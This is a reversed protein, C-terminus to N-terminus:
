LRTDHEFNVVVHHDPKYVAFSYGKSKLYAIIQPLAAVTQKNEHMLIVNLNGHVQRKIQKIVQDPKGSYKWDDSDVTWDWMKFGAKAIDDRFSKSIQPASGYPARILDVTLGTMQKFLQQEQQFEQIFNASSGSKYLKDYNHTMSHLGAYNGAALLHDIQKQHNKLQNGIVFFTAHIDRNTLINVIQDTYKSPGDDFTLYVTKSTISDPTVPAKGGAATEPPLASADPEPPTSAAAETEKGNDSALKGPNAAAGKAPSVTTQVSPTQKDGTGPQTSPAPPESPPQVPKFTGGSQGVSATLEPNKNTKTISAEKNQEHVTYFSIAALAVVACALIINVKRLAHGKRKQTRQLERM